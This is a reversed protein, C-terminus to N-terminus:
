PYDMFIHQGLKTDNGRTINTSKRTNIKPVVGQDSGKRVGAPVSGNSQSPLYGAKAKFADMSSTIWFSSSHSDHRGSGTIFPVPRRSDQLLEIITGDNIFKPLKKDRKELVPETFDDKYVSHSTLPEDRAILGATSRANIRSIRALPQSSPGLGLLESEFM